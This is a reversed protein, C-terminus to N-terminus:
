CEGLAIETPRTTNTMNWYKDTQQNLKRQFVANSLLGTICNSLTRGSVLTFSQVISMLQNPAADSAFQYIVPNVLIEATCILFMQIFAYWVSIHSMRIPPNVGPACDSIDAVNQQFPSDNRMQEVFM